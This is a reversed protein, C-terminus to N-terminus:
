AVYMSYFGIEPMQVRHNDAGVAILNRVDDLVGRLADRWLLEALAGGFGKARTAGHFEESFWREGSM